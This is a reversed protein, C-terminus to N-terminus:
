TEQAVGSHLRRVREIAEDTNRAKQQSASVKKVVQPADKWRRKNLWTSPYPIKDMDQWQETRKWCELGALIEGLNGDLMGKVWVKLAELRDVKKPYANWFQYFEESGLSGVSKTPLPKIKEVEIDVEGEVVCGPTNKTTVEAAGQRTKRRWARQRMYESQYKAWSLIKVAYLKPAEERTVVLEIKGQSEFLRFTELIDVSADGLIGAYRDLPYGFLSSPDDGACVVGPVRSRGALTLLDVWFARQGGSMEYRSTGDLWEPVWLKIWSRGMSKYAEAM